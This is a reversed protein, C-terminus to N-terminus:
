KTFYLNKIRQVAEAIELTRARLTQEDSLAFDKNLINNLKGITQINRIKHKIRGLVGPGEWNPNLTLTPLSLNLAAAWDNWKFDSVDDGEHLHARHRVRMWPVRFIDAVIAGHMAECLIRESMRIDNMVDEVEQTPDIYHIGCSRMAEFLPKDNSQSMFHPIYSLKHKKKLPPLNLLGLAYAGDAIWKANALNTSSLPGRLFQIDWSDDIIPAIKSPRFGSGFIIKKADPPICNNIRSDLISGIGILIHNEPLEFTGFIKPWLWTNLSDGFNPSDSYYFIQM